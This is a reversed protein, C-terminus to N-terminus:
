DPNKELFGRSCIGSVPNEIHTQPKTMPVFREMKPENAQIFWKCIEAGKRNELKQYSVGLSWDWHEVAQAESPKSLYPFASLKPFVHYMKRIEAVTKFYWKPNPGEDVAQWFLRNTRLRHQQLQASTLTEMIHTWCLRTLLLVMGFSPVFEKKNREMQFWLFLLPSKYIWSLTAKVLSLMKMGKVNFAKECLYQFDSCSSGVPYWKSNVGLSICLDTCYVTFTFDLEKM